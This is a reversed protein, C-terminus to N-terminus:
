VKNERASFTRVDNLAISIEFLAHEIDSIDEGSFALGACERQYFRDAVKRCKEIIADPLIAMKFIKENFEYPTEATEFAVGRAVFMAVFRSYFDGDPRRAFTILRAIDYSTRDDFALRMIKYFLLRLRRSFIMWLAIAFVYWAGSANACFNGAFQKWSTKRAKERAPALFKDDLEKLLSVARDYFNAAISFLLENSYYSIYQEIYFNFGDLYKNLFNFIPSKSKESEISAATPDFTIFGYNPFYVEVWAHADSGRVIFYGGAENYEPTAFGSVLRAPIDVAQCMLVMASAFFECHGAKVMFLFVENPDYGSGRYEDYLEGVALTYKYNNKLYNELALVKEYRTKYPATLRKALTKVAYMREAPFLTFYTTVRTPDPGNASKLLAEDPSPVFSRVKVPGESENSYLNDINDSQIFRANMNVNLALYQNPVFGEPNYRVFYTSNVITGPALFSESTARNVVFNMSEEPLIRRGGFGTSIWERRQPSYRMYSKMKYYSGVNVDKTIRMILSNSEKINEISNFNFISSIGAFNLRGM